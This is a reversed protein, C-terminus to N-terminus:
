ISNMSFWDRSSDFTSCQNGFVNEQLGSQNWTDLPSRKDRSLLARSSPIMVPQSSVHSLRRSYNSEAHSFDGSDNMSNMREQMKQLQSTLQQITEHKGRLKQVSVEDIRQEQARKMEGMEHVNRIQTNRLVTEKTSLEEQLRVQERRSEVFEYQAVQLALRQEETQGQLEGLCKNLSEVRLEQKALDSRAQNLLHDKNGELLSGRLNSPNANRFMSSRILNGQESSFLADPKVLAKQGESSHSMLSEKGAETLQASVKREREREQVVLADPKGSAKQAYLPSFVMKQLEGDELDSDATSEASDDFHMHSQFYSTESFKPDISAPSGFEGFEKVEETIPFRRGREGFEKQSDFLQYPDTIRLIRSVTALEKPEYGTSLRKRPKGGSQLNERWLPEQHRRKDVPLDQLPQHHVAHEPTTSSLLTFSSSPTSTTFPLHSLLLPRSM